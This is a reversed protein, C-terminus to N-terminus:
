TCRFKSKWIQKIVEVPAGAAACIFINKILKIKEDMAECAIKVNKEKFYINQM